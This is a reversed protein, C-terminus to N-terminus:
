SRRKKKKEKKRRDPAKEVDVTMQPTTDFTELILQTKLLEVGEVSKILENDKFALRQTAKIGLHPGNAQKIHSLEPLHAENPITYEEVPRLLLGKGEPTEVMQVFKMEEFTLGKSIEEGPNVMQGDGEFRELAKSDSSLHFEGSRVIIERLIDNGM